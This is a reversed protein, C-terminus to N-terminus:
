WGYSLTLVHGPGGFGDSFPVIAYDFEFADFSLGLGLTLGRLADNTVYGVRAVITELVVGSAAVHLRSDNTSTIQELEVAVMLDLLPFGDEVAVVKFPYIAVGARITTPLDTVFAPVESLTGVHLLSAGLRVGHDFADFIVGVDGAFGNSGNSSIRQAVFKGTAGLQLRGFRRAITLGTTLYQAGATGGLEPTDEGGADSAILFAAVGSRTGVKARGALGYTRTRGVWIHHAIGLEHSADIRRSGDHHQRSAPFRDDAIGAPNWFSAFAAQASGIGTDGLGAAEANIGTTLIPLVAQQAYM